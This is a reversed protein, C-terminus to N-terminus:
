GPIKDRFLFVSRDVRSKWDNNEQASFSQADNADHQLWEHRALRRFHEIRKANILVLPHEWIGCEASIISIPLALAFQALTLPCSQERGENIISLRHFTKCKGISDFANKSAFKNEKYQRANEGGRGSPATHCFKKFDHRDFEHSCMKLHYM